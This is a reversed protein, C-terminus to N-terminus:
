VQPLSTQFQNLTSRIHYLRAQWFDAIPLPQPLSAMFASSNTAIEQIKEFVNELQDYDAASHLLNTMMIQRSGFGRPINLERGLTAINEKSLLFGSEIPTTLFAAIRKLDTAPDQALNPPQPFQALFPYDTISLQLAHESIFEVTLRALALYFPNEHRCIADVFPTLWILLHNAFFSSIVEDIQGGQELRSLHALFDLEVSIHDPNDQVSPIFDNATYVQELHIAIPGGLNLEPDLYASAHPFVNLGFIDFHQASLTDPTLDDPISDQLAPIAQIFPLTTNSIGSQYLQSLLDYTNARALITEDPNM